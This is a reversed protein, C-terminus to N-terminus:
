TETEMVDSAIKRAFAEAEDQDEGMQRGRTSSEADPSSDSSDEAPDRSFISSSGASTLSGHNSVVMNDENDTPTM